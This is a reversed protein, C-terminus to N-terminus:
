RCSHSQALISAWQYLKTSVEPKVFHTWTVFVMETLQPFIQQLPHSETQALRKGMIGTGRHSKILRGSMSSVVHPEDDSFRYIILGIQAHACRDITM